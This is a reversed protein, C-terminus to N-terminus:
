ILAKNNGLSRPCGKTPLVRLTCRSLHIFYYQEVSESYAELKYKDPVIVLARSLLEITFPHQQM